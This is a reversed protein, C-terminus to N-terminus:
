CRSFYGANYDSRVSPNCLVTTEVASDPGLTYTKLVHETLSHTWVQELVGGLRDRFTKPSEVTCLDHEVRDIIYLILSYIFNIQATLDVWGIIPVLSFTIPLHLYGAHFQGYWGGLTFQYICVHSCAVYVRFEKPTFPAREKIFYIFLFYWNCSEYSGKVLNLTVQFYLQWTTYCSLRGRASTLAVSRSM